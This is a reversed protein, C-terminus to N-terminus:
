NHIGGGGDFSRPPAKAPECDTDVLDTFALPHGPSSVSRPECHVIQFDFTVRTVFTHGSLRLEHVSPPPLAVALGVLGLLRGPGDPGDPGSPGGAPQASPTETAGVAPRLRCQLQMAQPCLDRTM